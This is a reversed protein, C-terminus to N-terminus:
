EVILEETEVADKSKLKVIYIGAPFGELSITETTSINQNKLVVGKTSYITMTTQENVNITIDNKAPNPYILIDPKAINTVESITAAKITYYYHIKLSQVWSNSKKDMGYVILEELNGTSDHSYTTRSSKKWDKLQFDWNYRILENRYGNEDVVYTTRNSGEWENNSQLSVQYHEIENGNNDYLYVDKYSIRFSETQSNWGLWSSETLKGMENYTYLQENSGVWSQKNSDWNYSANITMKNFSNVAYVHKANLIWKISDKNWVYRTTLIENGYSDYVYDDKGSLIWENTNLNWIYYITESSDYAPTYTMIRKMNLVLSDLSYNFTYGIESIPHNFNDFVWLMRNNEDWNNTNSNWYYINQALRNGESDLTYFTKYQPILTNTITDGSSRLEGIFRGDSNYSSIAQDTYLWKASYTSWKYSTTESTKDYSNFKIDYKTYPTWNNSNINWYSYLIQTIRNKEDYQYQKRNLQWRNLSSNWMYGISDYKLDNMNYTFLEKGTVNWSQTTTDWRSTYTSDLLSKFEPDSQLNSANLNIYFFCLSIVINFIRVYTKM